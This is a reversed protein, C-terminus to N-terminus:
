AHDWPEPLPRYEPFHIDHMEYLDFITRFIHPPFGDRRPRDDQRMISTLYERCEKTGWLREIRKPIHPFMYLNDLLNDRKM